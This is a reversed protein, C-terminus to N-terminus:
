GHAEKEALERQLAKIVTQQAEDRDKRAADVAERAATFEKLREAYLYEAAALLEQAREVTMHDSWQECPCYKCGVPKMDEYTDFHRYYAHGCICLRDDGFETTPRGVM